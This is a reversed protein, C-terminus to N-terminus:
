CSGELLVQHVRSEDRSKGDQRWAVGVLAFGVTIIRERRFMFGGKRHVFRRATLNRAIRRRRGLERYRAAHRRREGRRSGEAVALSARSTSAVRPSTAILTTM